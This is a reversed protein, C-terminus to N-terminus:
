QDSWPCSAWSPFGAANWVAPQAASRLYLPHKPSGDANVGLCVPQETPRSAVFDRLPAPRPATIGAPVSGFAVVVAHSRALETAVATDNDRVADLDAHWDWAALQKPGTARLPFLNVIRMTRFNWRSAFGICRKTTPDDTTADATSPNLMVFLVSGVNLLGPIERELTYRMRGDLSIFAGSM